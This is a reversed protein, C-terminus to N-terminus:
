HYKSHKMISNYGMTEILVIQQGLYKSVAFGKFTGNEQGAMKLLKLIQFLCIVHLLLGIVVYM